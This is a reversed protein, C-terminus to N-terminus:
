DYDDLNEVSNVLASYLNYDTSKLSGLLMHSLEHIPADDSANDTNIYIEGDLIFANVRTADPIVDKFGGLRLESSTVRNFKVGYLDTLRDLM